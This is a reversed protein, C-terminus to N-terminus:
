QCQQPDPLPDRELYTPLGELPLQRGDAFGALYQGARLTTAHGGRHSSIEIAENGPQQVPMEANLYQQLEERLRELDADCARLIDRAVPEDLLALLLHEVTIFEHLRSRAWGAVQNLATEFEKSFM